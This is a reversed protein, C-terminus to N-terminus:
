NVVVEGAKVLCGAAVAVDATAGNVLLAGVNEVAPSADYAVQVLRSWALSQGLGMADVYSRLAAAVAGKVTGADFGAAVTVALSIDATTVTPALVAYSAGVPRMREVASSVAALLSSSPAGTGDDVVVVFSGLRPTGDPLVNERVVHRLGQQVSDIGFGIAAPTARALSAMFGTFRARLASDEEADLGGSFEAPNTVTDVGALAAAVLTVAGAQVNGQSGPVLARVPADVEAEGAMMAYGGLGESYGTM